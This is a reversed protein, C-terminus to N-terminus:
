WIRYYHDDRLSVDTYGLMSLTDDAYLMVKEQIAEYRFGVIGPRSRISIALPEIALAFLLPSLPCGQRTGRQLTFTHSLKGFARIAAQPQVYLLCVWSIYQPSFGFHGLVAWLYGWDISDFAKMADLSLLARSGVNNAPSQINLFLRRLNLATYKNPLFGVQDSHMISTIVENLRVALVKALIKVDYQLLSISRSITQNSRSGESTVKPVSM